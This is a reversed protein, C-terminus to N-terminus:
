CCTHCKTEIQRRGRGLRGEKLRLLPIYSPGKHSEETEMTMLTLKSKVMSIHIKDLSDHLLENV